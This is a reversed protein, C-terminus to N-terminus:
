RIKPPNKWSATRFRIAVVPHSSPTRRVLCANGWISEGVKNWCLPFLVRRPEIDPRNYPLRLSARRICSFRGPPKCTTTTHM